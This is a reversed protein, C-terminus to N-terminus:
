QQHFYSKVRLFLIKTEKLTAFLKLWAEFLRISFKLDIERLILTALKHGRSM